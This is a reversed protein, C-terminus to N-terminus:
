AEDDGKAFAHANLGVVFWSVCFLIFCMAGGPSQPWIACAVRIAVYILFGLCLYNIKKLIKVM